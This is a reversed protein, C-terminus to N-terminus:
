SVNISYRHNDAADDSTGSIESSILAASKLAYLAAETRSSVGLKDFIRYLHTEITRTSVVLEDAIKANRWGKAVLALVTREQKTLENM